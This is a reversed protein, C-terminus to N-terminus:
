YIKFVNNEIYEFVLFLENDNKIIEKLKIINNHQLIRM